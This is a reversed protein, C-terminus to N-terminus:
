RCESLLQEAMRVAQSGYSGGFLNYHNLIHYQNYLTKRVGYGADLPWAENYSAYFSGSFGSFLETMALDAERDGFYCAPDFIVPEGSADYAANGGWLDGHLLSPRPMYDTFFDGLSEALRECVQVAHRGIGRAEALRIQYGLRHQCWFEVWNDSWDNIQATAGITNDRHWGFRQAQDGHMQALQAGMAAADGSGHLPIYEMVLFASSGSSGSLLPRPVRISHTQYMADLGAYEAEFMDLMSAANLKVFYEQGCGTVHFAQNICGGGLTKKNDIVFRKGVHTSIMQELEAWDM